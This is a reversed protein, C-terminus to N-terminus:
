KTSDEADADIGGADIDIECLANEVFSLADFCIGVGKKVKLVGVWGGM